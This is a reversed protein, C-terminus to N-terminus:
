VGGRRVPHPPKPLPSPPSPLSPTSVPSAETGSCPLQQPVRVPHGGEGEAPVGRVAAEAGAAGVVAAHLQPVGVAQARQRLVVQVLYSNFLGM